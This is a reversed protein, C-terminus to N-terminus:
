RSVEFLRSYKIVVQRQRPGSRFGTGALTGLYETDNYVIFLGTGAADLWGFRVNTALNETDDNYQLTAQFYTRPTFSYSAALRMVATTFDGEALRVDFWDARFLATLRDSWRYAVTANPGFRTGSYFGGLEWGGTLSLRHARAM